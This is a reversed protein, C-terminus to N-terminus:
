VLPPGRGRPLELDVTTGTFIRTPVLSALQRLGFLLFLCILAPLVQGHAFQTVICGDEGGDGVGGEAAAADHHHCVAEHLDPRVSLISLALVWAVCLVAVLRHLTTLRHTFLHMMVLASSSLKDFSPLAQVFFTNGEAPESLFSRSGKRRCPM